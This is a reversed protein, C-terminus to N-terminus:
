PHRGPRCLGDATWLLYRRRDQPMTLDCVLRGVTLSSCKPPSSLAGKPGPLPSEPSASDQRALSDAPIPVSTAPEVVSSSAMPAEDRIWACGGLLCFSLFLSLRRM